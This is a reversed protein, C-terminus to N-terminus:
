TIRIPKTAIMRSYFPQWSRLRLSNTTTSKGFDMLARAKDLAALYESETCGNEQTKALLAKIVEIASHRDRM